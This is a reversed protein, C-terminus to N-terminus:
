LSTHRLTELDWTLAQSSILEGYIDSFSSNRLESATVLREEQADEWLM